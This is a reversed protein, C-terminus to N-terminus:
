TTRLRGTSPEYVEGKQKLKDLENEVESQSWGQEELVLLVFPVPAGEEHKEDIVEVAQKVNKIRERQSLASVESEFGLHGKKQSRHEERWEDADEHDEFTESAGCLTCQVSVVEKEAPEEAEHDTYESHEGRYEAADALRDFTWEDDCVSCELVYETEETVDLEPEPSETDWKVEHGTHESHKDAFTVLDSYNDADERLDCETCEVAVYDEMSSM